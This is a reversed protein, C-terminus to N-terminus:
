DLTRRSQEPLSYIYVHQTDYREVRGARYLMDLEDDRIPHGYDREESHIFEGSLLDQVLGDEWEIVPSGNNLVFIWQRSIPM